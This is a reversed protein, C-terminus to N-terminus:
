WRSKRINQIWEIDEKKFGNLLSKGEEVIKDTFEFTKMPSLGFGILDKRIDIIKRKIIEKIMKKIKEEEM